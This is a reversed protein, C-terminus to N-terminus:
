MSLTKSGVGDVIGCEDDRHGIWVVMLVSHQMSLPLMCSMCELCTYVICFENDFSLMHISSFNFYNGYNCPRYPWFELLLSFLYLCLFHPEGNRNFILPMGNAMANTTLVKFFNDKFCFFINSDFKFLKKSVCNLSVWGMRSTLKMIFFYHFVTASPWINFFPCLVEFARVM